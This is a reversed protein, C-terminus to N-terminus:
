KGTGHKCTDTQPLPESHQGRAACCACDERVTAYKVSLFDMLGDFDSFVATACGLIWGSIRGAEMGAVLYVPVGRRYALSLEAGTGAGRQAYEDWFVVIYDCKREVWDLDWDIIKRITGRFRVPDALKWSRFERVEEDTLNKKEDAAPDYVDHGLSRLFPTLSARWTRGRDPAYEISGSLYALM